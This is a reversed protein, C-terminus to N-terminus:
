AYAAPPPVSVNERSPNVGSLPTLTGASFDMTAKLSAGKINGWSGPTAGGFTFHWPQSSPLISGPYQSAASVGNQPVAEEGVQDEMQSYYATGLVQLSDSPKWLMKGRIVSS